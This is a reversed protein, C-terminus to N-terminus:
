RSGLAGLVAVLQRRQGETPLLDVVELMRALLGPEYERGLVGRALAVLVARTSAPYRDPASM